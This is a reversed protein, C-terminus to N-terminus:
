GLETDDNLLIERLSCKYWTNTPNAKTKGSVNGETDCLYM